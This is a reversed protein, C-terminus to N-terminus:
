VNAIYYSRNISSANRLLIRCIMRDFGGSTSTSFAYWEILVVQPTQQFHPNMSRMGSKSFSFRQLTPDQPGNKKEWLSEPHAQHLCFHSLGQFLSMWLWLYFRCCKFLGTITKQVQKNIPSLQVAHPVETVWDLILSSAGANSAWLGLWQVVM